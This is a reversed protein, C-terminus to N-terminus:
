AKKFTGKPVDTTKRHKKYDTARDEAFSAEMQHGISVVKWGDEWKGSNNKLEVCQNLIAFKKPIFAVQEFNGKRMRCQCYSNVKSM